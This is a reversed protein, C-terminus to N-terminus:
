QTIIAGVLRNITATREPTPTFIGMTLISAYMQNIALSSRNRYNMVDPRERRFNEIRTLISDAKELVRNYVENGAALVANKVNIESVPNVIEHIMNFYEFHLKNFGYFSYQLDFSGMKSLQEQFGQLDEFRDNNEVTFM